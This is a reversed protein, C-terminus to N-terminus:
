FTKLIDKKTKFVPLIERHAIIGRIYGDRKEFGFVTQAAKSVIQVARETSQTHIPFYPVTMPSKKFNSIEKKSLKCTFVPEYCLIKDWFILNLPSTAETNIAPTKHDRVNMCGFENSGRLKLITEIAFVRNEQVESALLTLIVNEPHAHYAGNKIYPSVIERVEEPLNRSIRLATVVHYPGDVLSHKVKIDFYLKFYSQLVFQIILEFKRLTEGQLGHVRAWLILLAEGTTLWRSHNLPGCKLGAVEKSLQGNKIAKALLYCNHQDTSLSKVVDEPLLILDEGGPMAKFEYNIPLDHVKSLLKGIPGTFGDRSTTAGDLKEVLHRLPLENIHLMCISWHCKHNLMKELHTLSGGRWGTMANTSNGGILILTEQAGHTVIWEFM